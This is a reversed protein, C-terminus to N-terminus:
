WRLTVVQRGYGAGGFRVVLEEGMLEGGEAAVKLGTGNRRVKLRAETGGVGEVELRMSRGTVTEDLVKLQGTRAGPLPLGHGVSVEVGPLPVRLRGGSAGVLRVPGGSVAKMEVAMAGGERRYELDVVAAGVHLRRVRRRM